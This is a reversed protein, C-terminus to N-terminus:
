RINGMFLVKGIKPADRRVANSAVPVCAALGRSNFRPPGELVHQTTVEAWDIGPSESDVSQQVADSGAAAQPALPQPLSLPMGM